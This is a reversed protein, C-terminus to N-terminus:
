KFVSFYGELTNVHVDDRAYEGAAHNVSEHKAVPSGRYHQAGDTVLRSKEDVNRWIADKVDYAKPSRPLVFSRRHGDPEILRMMAVKPQYRPRKKTKPSNTLFTEDAEVTKGEGGLKGIDGGPAMAARIRHSLHWATKMSCRLMRQIQRTSIGKK